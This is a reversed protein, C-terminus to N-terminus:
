VNLEVIGRVPKELFVVARNKPLFEVSTSGVYTANSKKYEVLIKKTEEKIPEERIIMVFYRANVLQLTELHECPFLRTKLVNGDSKSVYCAIVKVHECQPSAIWHIQSSKRPIGAQHLESEPFIIQFIHVAEDNVLQPITWRSLHRNTNKAGTRKVWIDTLTFQAQGSAHFSLKAESGMMRSQLYVDQSNVWVKWVTSRRGEPTGICFKFM